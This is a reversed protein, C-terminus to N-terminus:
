LDFISCAGDKKILMEPAWYGRTGCRGTLTPTLEVALGLDTIACNGDEGLLINQPKLDRYVIGLGHLHELGLLVQAAYFRTRTVNFRRENSLHFALDGGTMIDQHIGVRNM